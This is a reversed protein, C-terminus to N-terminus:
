YVFRMAGGRNGWQPRYTGTRKTYIKPLVKFPRPKCLVPTLPGPGGNWM